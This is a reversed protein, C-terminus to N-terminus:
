KAQGPEVGASRSETAKGQRAKAQAAVTQAKRRDARRQARRTPRRPAPEAAAQRDVAKLYNAIAHASRASATYHQRLYAELGFIDGGKSLGRPSKHCIACDSGYLEAPTKGMDLNEQARAAGAFLLAVMAAATGCGHCFSRNSATMARIEGESYTRGGRTGGCAGGRNAMDAEYGAITVMTLNAHSSQIQPM